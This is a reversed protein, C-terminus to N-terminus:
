VPRYAIDTFARNRPALAIGCFGFFTTFRAPALTLLSSVTGAAEVFGEQAQTRGCICAVVPIQERRSVSDPPEIGVSEPAGSIKGGEM